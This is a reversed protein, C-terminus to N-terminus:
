RYLIILASIAGLVLLIIILFYEVLSSGKSELVIYKLFGINSLKEKIQISM